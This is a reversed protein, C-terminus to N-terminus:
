NRVHLLKGYKFIEADGFGQSLVSVSFVMCKSGCIHVKRTKQVRAHGAAKTLAPSSMFKVQGNM